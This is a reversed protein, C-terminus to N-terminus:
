NVSVLGSEDNAAIKLGACLKDPMSLDSLYQGIKGDM